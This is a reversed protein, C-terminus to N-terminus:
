FSSATRDIYCRPNLNPTEKNPVLSCFIPYSRSRAIGPVVLSREDIHYSRTGDIDVEQLLALDPDYANVTDM